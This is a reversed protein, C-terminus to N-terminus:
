RRRRAAGWGVAAGVGVLAAVRSPSVDRRVVVTAEPVEELPGDDLEPGGEATAIWAAVFLVLQAVLNFFFLLGIVPGFIQATLSGGTVDPLINLLAYKLIGFGIAALISGRLRAKLPSRLAKGPLVTYVWLFILIDAAMAILITTVAVVSTLWQQDGLGLFDLLTTQFQAGLTSLGLSVTIAVALGALSGLDKLTAIVINDVEAKDEEFEPRWIARTAKRLNGMWGIGAYLAILLGTIGVGRPDDVVGDILNTIKQAAVEDAFVKTIQDELEDLLEPNNALVIGGVAFGVMLIPVLSLFSFYTMAGAFQSGLRDGYRTIARILHKVSKKSAIRKGRLVMRGVFSREAPLAQVPPTRTSPTM